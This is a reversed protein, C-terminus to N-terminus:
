ASRKQVSYWTIGLAVSLETIVLYVLAAYSLATFVVCATLYIAENM